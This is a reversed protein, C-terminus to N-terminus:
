KNAFPGIDAFRVLVLVILAPADVIELRRSRDLVSRAGEPFVVTINRHSEHRRSGM